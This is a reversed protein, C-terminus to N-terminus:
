IHKYIREIFSAYIFLKAQGLSECEQDQTVDIDEWIFQEELSNELESLKGGRVILDTQYDLTRYVSSLTKLTWDSKREETEGLWERKYGKKVLQLERGEELRDQCLYMAVLKAKSSLTSSFSEGSWLEELKCVEELLVMAEDVRGVDWYLNALYEM